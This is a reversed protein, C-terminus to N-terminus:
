GDGVVDMVKLVWGIIYTLQINWESNVTLLILWDITIILTGNAKKVFVM